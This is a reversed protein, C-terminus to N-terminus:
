DGGRRDAPLLADLATRLQADDGPGYGVHDYRVAGESDILVTRPVARVQYARVTILERDHLVPFSWGHERVFARVYDTDRAEQCVTIVVLGPRGSDYLSQIHELEELCPACWTTWFVLLVAEGPQASLAVLQGDLDSLSLPPALQDVAFSTAPLDPSSTLQPGRAIQSAFALLLSGNAGCLFLLLCTTTALVITVLGCGRWGANM